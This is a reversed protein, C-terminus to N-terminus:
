DCYAKWRGYFVTAGAGTLAIPHTEGEINVQKDDMFAIYGRRGMYSGHFNKANVYGCWVLPSRKSKWAPEFRASGPDILVRKVVAQHDAETPIPPPRLAVFAASAFAAACLGLKIM